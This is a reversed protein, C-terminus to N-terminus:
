RRKNELVVKEILKEVIKCSVEKNHNNEYIEAASDYLRKQLSKDFILTELSKKLNERETCVVSSNTSNMYEIIGSEMSGYVFINTGSALSDAAKTSLSYRSLNIDKKKFGEVIVTIDSELMRQKVQEYPISGLFSVNKNNEFIKFYKKDPENSYVELIYNENIEGLAYGIENLSKNRGMQINGFYSIVPNVTNVPMFRKRATESSLYVTEGNLGFESNYKNKIKDSIFVASGFVSFIKDVLRKYTYKYIYYLPNITKEVNFYYDDGICSVIPINYKKAIYLAIKLIFYDNSFALFVCEPKFEDLWLDFKETCWFSKKWLIGRLLHTFPSHRRGLKYINEAVSSNLELDTSCWESKLDVDYFIKGTELKKGLWRKLMRQDTIQYFSGCHGKCPEKTNSFVQIINEKEWNHFYADFARSTSKKNYPVTGVIVVRRHM